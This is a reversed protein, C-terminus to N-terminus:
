IEIKHKIARNPGIINLTLNLCQNGLMPDLILMVMWTVDKSKGLLFTTTKPEGLILTQKVYLFIVRMTMSPFYNYLYFLTTTPYCM